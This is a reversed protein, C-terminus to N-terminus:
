GMGMEVGLSAEGWWKSVASELWWKGKGGWRSGTGMKRWAPYRVDREEGLSDVKWM